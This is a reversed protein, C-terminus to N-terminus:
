LLPQQMQRAKRYLTMQAQQREPETQMQAQQLQARLQAYSLDSERQMQQQQLATQTGFQRQAAQFQAWDLATDKDIKSYELQRQLEAERQAAAIQAASQLTEIPSQRMQYAQMAATAAADAAGMRAGLTQGSLASLYDMKQRTLRDQLDALNQASTQEVGRMAADYASTSTLGRRLMNQRAQALAEQRQRDVAAIDSEGYGTLLQSLDAERTGYATAAANQQALAAQLAATQETAVGQSQQVAQQYMADAQSPYVYPQAGQGSTSSMTTQSSINGPSTVGPAVTAPMYLRANDTLWNEFTPAGRGKTAVFQQWKQRADAVQVPSMISQVSALTAARQAQRANYAAAQSGITPTTPSTTPTLAAKIGSYSPAQPFPMYSLGSATGGASGPLYSVTDYEPQEQIGLIQASSSPLVM